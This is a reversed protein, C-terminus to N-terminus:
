SSRRSTTWCGTSSADCSTSRIRSAARDAAAPAPRRRRHAPGATSRPSGGSRRISLLMGAAISLFLAPLLGVALTQASSRASRSSRTSTAPSSWSRAAPVRRRDGRVTQQEPGEDIRVVAVEQARDMSTSGAPIREIDGALRRGDAAFLGTTSSGGRIRRAPAGTSPPLRERRPRRALMRRRGTIVEDFRITLYRGGALLDCGFLLLMYVVFM